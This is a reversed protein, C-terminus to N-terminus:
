PSEPIYSPPPAERSIFVGGPPLSVPANSSVGFYFVPFGAALFFNTLDQWHGRPASQEPSEDASIIEITPKSFSEPALAVVLRSQRLVTESFLSPNTLAIQAHGQVRFFRNRSDRGSQHVRYNFLSQPVYEASYGRAIIQLWLDWDEYFQERYRVGRDFLSARWLACVPIHNEACESYRRFVGTIWETPEGPLGGVFAVDSYAIAATPKGRLAKVLNALCQPSISEDSDLLLIFEGTALSCGYNRAAAVGSNPQRYYRIKPNSRALQAGLLPTQDTSGDDVIILEWNGYTQGCVSNVCETLFRAYNYCPVVVSVKEALRTQM